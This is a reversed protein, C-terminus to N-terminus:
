VRQKWRAPDRSAHMVALVVIRESDIRFFVGFPFRHALARRIGRHVEPFQMPRDVIRQMCKYIETLFEHGLGSRQVEYWGAADELDGEAEPRVRLEFSM